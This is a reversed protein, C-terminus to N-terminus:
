ASDRSTEPCVRLFLLHRLAVHNRRLDRQIRNLSEILHKVMSVDHSEVRRPPWGKDLDDILIV